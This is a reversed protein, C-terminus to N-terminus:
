EHAGAKPAGASGAAAPGPIGPESPMPASSEAPAVPTGKLEAQDRFVAPITGDLGRLFPISPAFFFEGGKMTVFDGFDFTKDDQVNGDGWKSSWKLQRPHDRVFQGILADLGLGKKAFDPSNCYGQQMFAFQDGIRAQYCQFLLGVGREPEDELTPMGNAGLARRGYTIGRRAIRHLREARDLEETNSSDGQERFWVRATDGRPNAKRIHAQVPCKRGALDKHYNFDNADVLTQEDDPDFVETGDKKKVTRAQRPSLEVPVGDEFRGVVLAGAREEEEEGLGLREALKDEAHKFGRVNQELKRFVFYSGFCDKGFDGEPALPDKVLVLDLGASPDYKLRAPTDKGARKVAKVIDEQFFLPQSIGDRYGFHEIPKNFADRLALGEECILVRAIGPMTAEVRQRVDTLRNPDEDALIILAHIKKGQYAEDWTSPDPDNLSEQAAQMGKKFRVKQAALMDKTLRVKTSLKLRSDEPFKNLKNGFGLARYGAASLLFSGFVRGSISNIKYEKTEDIQRLASTVYRNTFNAIWIKVKDQAGTFEVFLHLAYDRGHSKLINGQLKGLLNTYRPLRPDIPTTEQSLDISGHPNDSM